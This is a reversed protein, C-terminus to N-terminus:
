ALANMSNGVISAANVGGGPVGAEYAIPIVFALLFLGLAVATKRGNKSSPRSSTRVKSLNEEAPAAAPQRSPSHTFGDAHSENLHLM